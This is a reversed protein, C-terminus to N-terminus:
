GPPVHLILGSAGLFNRVLRGCFRAATPLYIQTDARVEAAWGPRMGNLRREDGRAWREVEEADVEPHFQVGWARRGIRFVQEGDRRAALRLAGPPLRFSYDHWELCVFPSSVGAMLPDPTVIDVPLWGIEPEVRLYVEGGAAAALLQAGLCIGLVPAEGRLCERVLALEEALFPHQETQHTHMSGGLVILASFGALGAPVPEGRYVRRVVFPLGALGLYRGITAPPDDDDHQIIVIPDM